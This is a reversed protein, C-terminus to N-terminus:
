EGRASLRARVVGFPDAQQGDLAIRCLTRRGSESHRGKRRALAADAVKALGLGVREVAKIGHHRCLHGEGADPLRLPHDIILAASPDVFDFSPVGHGVQESRPWGRRGLRQSQLFGGKSDFVENESSRRGEERKRRGHM